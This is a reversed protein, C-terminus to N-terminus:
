YIYLQIFYEQIVFDYVQIGCFWFRNFDQFNNKKKYTNIAIM